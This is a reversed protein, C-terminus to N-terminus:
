GTKYIFPYLHYANDGIGTEDALSFRKVNLAGGFRGPPSAISIM